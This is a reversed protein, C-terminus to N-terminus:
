GKKHTALAKLLAEKSQKVSLEKLQQESINSSKHPMPAHIHRNQVTQDKQQWQIQALRLVLTEFDWKMVDEPKYAPFHSCIIVPIMHVSTDLTSVRNNIEQQISQEDAFRAAKLFIREGIWLIQGPQLEKYDPAIIALKACEGFIYLDTFPKNELTGWEGLTLDRYIIDYNGLKVYYKAM